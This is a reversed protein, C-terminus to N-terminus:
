KTNFACIFNRRAYIIRYITVRHKEEDVSYFLFYNQVKVRRYENELSRLPTYLANRYPMVVLRLAAERLENALKRAGTPNKLTHSIYKAIEVMDERAKPMVYLEYM